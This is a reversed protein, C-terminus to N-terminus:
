SNPNEIQHFLEMLHSLIAEKSVKDLSYKMKSFESAEWSYNVGPLTIQGLIAKKYDEAKDGGLLRSNDCLLEVENYCDGLMKYPIKRLYNLPMTISNIVFFGHSMLLKNALVAQQLTNVIGPPSLDLDVGLVRSMETDDLYIVKYGKKKLLHSLESAIVDIGSGTYGSLWLSSIVEKPKNSNLM